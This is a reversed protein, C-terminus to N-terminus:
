PIEAWTQMTAELTWIRVKAQVREAYMDREAVISLDGTGLQKRVAHETLSMGTVGGECLANLLAADWTREHLRWPARGEATARLLHTYADACKRRARGDKVQFVHNGTEIVTATPLVFKVGEQKRREMEAVVADRRENMFPVNLVEVLVCTDLFDVVPLALAPQKQRKM